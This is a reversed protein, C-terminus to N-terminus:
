IQSSHLFIDKEVFFNKIVPYGTDLPHGGLDSELTNRDIENYKTLIQSFYRYIACKEKNYTKFTAICSLCKFRHLM